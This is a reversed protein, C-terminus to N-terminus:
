GVRQLIEKSKAEEFRAKLLLQDLTGESGM